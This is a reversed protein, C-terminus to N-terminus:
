NLPALTIIKICEEHCHDSLRDIVICATHSNIGAAPDTGTLGNIVTFPALM